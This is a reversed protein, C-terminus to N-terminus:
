VMSCYYSAIYIYMTKHSASNLTVNTNKGGFFSTAHKLFFYKSFWMGTHYWKPGLAKSVAVVTLTNTM